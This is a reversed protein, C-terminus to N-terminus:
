PAANAGSVDDALGAERASRAGTERAWDVFAKVDPTDMLHDHVLLCIAGYPSPCQMQPFPRVLLGAELEERCLVRDAMVVGAGMLAAKVAMDLNPFDDGAAASVGDAPYAALWDQWDHRWPTEHLLTHRALDAPTRLPLSGNLLDPTCAPTLMVPFIPVVTLGELRKPWHEVSFSVDFERIEFRSTRFFDTTLRLDIDPHRTRFSELNPLLWRISTAPPCLIRLTRTDTRLRAAERTITEFAESLVPLFRRGAETLEVGRAHRHFLPTGLHAELLKVHRSIAGRTVNLEESAAVYGNHRAAAEFARLANLPPLKM